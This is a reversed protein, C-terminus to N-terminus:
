KSRSSSLQANPGTVLAHVELMKQTTVPSWMDGNKEESKPSNLREYLDFTVLGQWEDEFWVFETSLGDVRCMALLEEIHARWPKPQSPDFVPINDVKSVTDLSIAQHTICWDDGIKMYRISILVPGRIQKNQHLV